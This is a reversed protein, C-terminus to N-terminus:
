YTGIMRPAADARQSASATFRIFELFPTSGRAQNCQYCAPLTYQLQSVRWGPTKRMEKRERHPFVHDITYSNGPVTASRHQPTIECATGCYYCVLRPSMNGESCSTRHTRM